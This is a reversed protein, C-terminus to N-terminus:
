TKRRRAYSERSRVRACERCGRNGRSDTYTNEATFEHGNLCSTKAANRAPVTEGRLINTRNNVVELHFPNICLTNRCLHDIMLGKPIEGVWETYALRHVRHQKGYAMIRGYGGQNSGEWVLCGNTDFHSM